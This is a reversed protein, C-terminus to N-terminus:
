KKRRGAKFRVGAERAWKKLTRPSIGSWEDRRSESDALDDLQEVARGSSLVAKCHELWRPKLIQDARNSLAHTPGSPHEIEDRIRLMTEIHPPWADHSLTTIACEYEDDSVGEQNGVKFIRLAESRHWRLDFAALNGEDELKEIFDDLSALDVRYFCALITWLTQNDKDAYHWVVNNGREECWKSLRRSIFPDFEGPSFGEPWARSERLADHNGIM